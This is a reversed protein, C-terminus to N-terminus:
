TGSLIVPARAALEARSAVELKGYINSLHTGV